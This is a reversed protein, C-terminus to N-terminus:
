VVEVPQLAIGDFERRLISESVELNVFVRPTHVGSVKFIRRQGIRKRSLVIRKDWGNSYQEASEDLCDLKDSLLIWYKKQIREGKQNLMVRRYMVNPDYAALLKKLADSVMFVPSDVVDPYISDGDGLTFLVSIEQIQEFEEPAFEGRTTSEMDRFRFRNRIRKDQEMEFYM